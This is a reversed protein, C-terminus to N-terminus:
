CYSPSIQRCFHECQFWFIIAWFTDDFITMKQGTPVSSFLIKIKSKIKKSAYLWTIFWRCVYFLVKLDQPYMFICLFLLLVQQLNTNTYYLWVIIETKSDNKNIQTNLSGATPTYLVKSELKGGILLNQFFYTNSLYM